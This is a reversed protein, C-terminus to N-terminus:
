ALLHRSFREPNRLTGSNQIQQHVQLSRNRDKTGSSFISAVTADSISYGVAALLM